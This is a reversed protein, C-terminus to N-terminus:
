LSPPPELFFVQFVVSVFADHRLTRRRSRAHQCYPSSAHRLSAPCKTEPPGDHNVAVSLIALVKVFQRASEACLRPPAACACAPIDSEWFSAPTCVQTAFIPVRRGTIVGRLGIRICFLYCSVASTSLYLYMLCIQPFFIKM